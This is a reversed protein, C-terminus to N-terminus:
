WRCRAALRRPMTRWVVRGGAREGPFRDSCDNWYGWSWIALVGSQSGCVLKKGNKIACVQLPAALQRGLPRLWNAGPLSLVGPSSARQKESLCRKSVCALKQQAAQQVAWSRM